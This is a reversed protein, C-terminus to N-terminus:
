GGRSDAREAAACDTWHFFGARGRDDPSHLQVQDSMKLRRKHAIIRGYFGTVQCEAYDGLQADGNAVKFRQGKAM